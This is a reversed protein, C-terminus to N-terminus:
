THVPQRRLRAGCYPASARCSVGASAPSSTPWAWTHPRMLLVKAAQIFLMCLYKDGRKSIRRLITRGGTSHQRPILGLWAGFDSGREFAEGDGIPM